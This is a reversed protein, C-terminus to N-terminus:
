THSRNTVSNAVLTFGYKLEHGACMFTYAKMKALVVICLPNHINPFNKFQSLKFDDNVEMPVHAERGSFAEEAWGFKHGKM